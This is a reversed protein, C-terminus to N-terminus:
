YTLRMVPVYRTVVQGSTATANVDNWVTALLVGKSSVTWMVADSLAVPLMPAQRSVDLVAFQARLRVTAQPDPFSLVLPHMPSGIWGTTNASTVPVTVDLSTRLPACLRGDFTSNPDNLGLCLVGAEGAPAGMAFLGLKVEGNVFGFNTMPAFIEFSGQQTTCKGAPDIYDAHASRVPVGDEADLSYGGTPSTNLCSMEVLLDDTGNYSFPVDFPIVITWPAPAGVNASHDPLDVTRRPLVVTSVKGKYNDAFVTSPAAANTHAMVVELDTTRAPYVGAGSKGDRRMELKAIGAIAPGRNEGSLWQYRGQGSMSYWPIFPTIESEGETTARGPPITITQQALSATSLLLLPLLARAADM